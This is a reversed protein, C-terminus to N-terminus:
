NCLNLTETHLREFDYNGIVLKKNEDLKNLVYIELNEYECALRINEEMQNKNINWGYVVVM